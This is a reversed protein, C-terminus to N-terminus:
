KLKKRVKNAEGVLSDYYEFLLEMIDEDKTPLDEDTSIWITVDNNMISYSLGDDIYQVTFCSAFLAIKENIEDETYEENKSIIENYMGVLTINFSRVANLVVSRYDQPVDQAHKINSQSSILM